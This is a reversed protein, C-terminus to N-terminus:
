DGDPRPSRIKGHRHINKGNIEGRYRDKIENYRPILEEVCRIGTLIRLQRRYSTDARKGEDLFLAELRKRIEEGTRDFDTLIIPNDVGSATEQLTKHLTKINTIGFKELTELDRKGEVLKPRPDEKLERIWRELREYKNM